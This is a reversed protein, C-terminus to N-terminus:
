KNVSYKSNKVNKEKTNLLKFINKDLTINLKYIQTNTQFIASYKTDNLMISIDKYKLINTKPNYNFNVLISIVRYYEIFYNYLKKDINIIKITKIFKYSNKYIPITKLQAYLMKNKIYPKSITLKGYLIKFSNNIAQNLLPEFNKKNQYFQKLKLIKKNYQQIEEKYKQEIKLRKNKRDEKLHKLRQIYNYYREYKIIKIPANDNLKEKIPKKPLQDKIKRQIFYNIMISLKQDITLDTYPNTYGYLSSIIFFIIFIYKM